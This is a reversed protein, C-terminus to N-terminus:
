FRPQKWSKEKEKKLNKNVVSKVWVYMIGAALFFYLIFDFLTM